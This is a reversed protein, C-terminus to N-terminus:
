QMMKSLKILKVEFSGAVIRIMKNQPITKNFSSFIESTSDRRCIQVYKKFTVIQFSFIQTQNLDVEQGWFIGIVQFNPLIGMQQCVGMDITVTVPIQDGMADRLSTEPDLNRGSFFVCRFLVSLFASAPMFGNLTTEGCM